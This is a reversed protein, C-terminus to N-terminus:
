YSRDMEGAFRGQGGDQGTPAPTLIAPGHAPEGKIGVIRGGRKLGAEDRQRGGPSASGSSRRLGPAGAVLKM